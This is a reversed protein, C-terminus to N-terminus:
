KEQSSNSLYNMIFNSYTNSVPITETTDSLELVLSDKLRKIVKVKYMNVLYFRHCRILGSSSFDEEINKLTNRLMQHTPIGENLYIIDVYNDASKLYLIDERKLSIVFKGNKDCFKLSSPITASVNIKHKEFEKIKQDKIRLLELLTSITYPIALISVINIFMRIGIKILSPGDPNLYHGWLTLAITLIFIESILWIYYQVDTIKKRKSTHYLLLRSTILILMGVGIILGCELFWTSDNDDKLIYQFGAPKYIFIFIIAFFAVSSIFRFIDKKRTLDNIFIM